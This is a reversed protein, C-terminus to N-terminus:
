KMKDLVKNVLEDCVMINPHERRHHIAEFRTNRLLDMVKRHLDKVNPSRVSYEGRIQKIMLESDSHLVLDRFDRSVAWQLAMIMAKYEAQNNTAKGIGKSMKRIVKEKEGDKIVVIFASAALGPNGRSGGDTYIHIEKMINM